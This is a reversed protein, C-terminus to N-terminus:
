KTQEELNLLKRLRPLWPRQDETLNREEWLKSIDPAAELGLDLELLTVSEKQLSIDRLVSLQQKEDTYHVQGVFL